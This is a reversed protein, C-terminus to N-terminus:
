HIIKQIFFNIEFPILFRPFRQIGTPTGLKGNAADGNDNKHGDSEGEM